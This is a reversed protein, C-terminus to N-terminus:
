RTYGGEPLLEHILAELVKLEFPKKLFRVNPRKLIDRLAAEGASGSVLIIPIDKTGEYDKLRAAASSGYVGSMVIDMIILHPKDEAAMAFAQAGDSAERVIFHRSRLFDRVPGRIGEEDDALLIEAIM